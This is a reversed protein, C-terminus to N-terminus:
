LLDKTKKLYKLILDKKNREKPNELVRQFAKDILKWIQPWPELNFEKMIDYGNIALDSKKFQWQEEIIKDIQKKMWKLGEIEPSQLPNYQGLRDAIAIDILNKMKREWHEAIRKKLNKVINKEKGRLWEGPKMHNEVYWAIEEIEKKSFGLKKFDERVFDAWQKPHHIYSWHMKKREEDTLGLQAYRYQDPKAVDHYLIWFRALYDNNFQQLHYLTILIHHYIDLPHYRVPQDIHKTQYLYPFIYKLINLEDLLGIFGFPNNSWKFIRLIEEKIREKAIFKILYFNKKMSRWTQTEFDFRFQEPPKKNNVKTINKFKKRIKENLIIAFRVWRIIRLADEQFRNDPNWVAKINGDILDILWQQPDFLLIISLSSINLEEFSFIPFNQIITKIKQSDNQYFLNVINKITDHDQLISIFYNSTVINLNKEKKLKIKFIEDLDKDKTPKLPQYNRIDVKGPLFTLYISNITFDRRISDKILDTTWKIEEPHRFDLYQGEERLPTLEYKCSKDEPLITITGFKDTKFIHIDSKDINKYIQHPNGPMTLDIDKIPEEAINLLLDRIVGGVLFFKDTKLKEKLFDFHKKTKKLNDFNLIM